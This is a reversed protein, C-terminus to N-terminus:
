THTEGCDRSTVEIVVAGGSVKKGRILRIEEWDKDDVGITEAVADLGQKIRALMNDLDFGYNKPPHFMILVTVQGANM